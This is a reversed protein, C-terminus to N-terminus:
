DQFFPFNPNFVYQKEDFRSMRKLKDSRLQMM